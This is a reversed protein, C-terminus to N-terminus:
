AGNKVGQLECDFPDSSFLLFVKYYSIYGKSHIIESCFRFNNPRYKAFYQGNCGDISFYHIQKGWDIIRPQTLIEWDSISVTIAAPCFM